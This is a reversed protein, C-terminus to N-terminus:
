LTEAMKWMTHVQEASLGLASALQSILPNDKRVAVSYEWEIKALSKQPEPLSNLIVDISDLSINNLVLVQRMQRPTLDKYHIPKEATATVDDVTVIEATIDNEAKYAQAIELSPFEIKQNELTIVYKIM